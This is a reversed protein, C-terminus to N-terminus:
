HRVIGEVIECEIEPLLVVISREVFLRNSSEDIRTKILERHKETQEPSYTLLHPFLEDALTEFERICRRIVDGIFGVDIGRRLSGSESKTIRERVQKEGSEIVIGSAEDLYRITITEIIKEFPISPNSFDTIKMISPKAEQFLQLLSQGSVHGREEAIAATFHFFDEMSKWYLEPEDFDPQGLVLLDRQCFKLRARNLVELILQRQRRDAQQRLANKEDLSFRRGQPCSVGVDRMMITTGISFGPLHRSFAHSLVFLSRVNDINEHNV